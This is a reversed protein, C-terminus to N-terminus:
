KGLARGVQAGAKVIAMALEALQDSRGSPVVVGISAIASRGSFVPASLGYMDLSLEDHSIAYGDRKVKQLAAVMEKRKPVQEILQAIRDAPLFALIARGSAGKILPHRFGRALEVRVFHEKGVFQEIQVADDGDCVTLIFTEGYNQGLKELVPRAAGLLEPEVKQAIRLLAVGPVYGDSSRRVFGRGHLTALARHVVTRHMALDRATQSATVPGHEAVYHLVQLVQDATKSIEAM